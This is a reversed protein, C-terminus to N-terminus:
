EASVKACVPRYEALQDNTGAPRQERWGNVLRVKRGTAATPPHLLDAQVAQEVSKM